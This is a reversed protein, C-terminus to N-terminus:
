RAGPPNVWGAPLVSEPGVIYVQYYLWFITVGLLVLFVVEGVVGAGQRSGRHLTRVLATIAPAVAFAVLSAGGIVMGMIFATRLWPHSIMKAKYSVIEVCLNFLLLCCPIVYYTRVAYQTKAAFKPVPVNSLGAADICVGQRLLGSTPGLKGQEVDLGM